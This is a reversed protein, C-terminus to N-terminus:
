AAEKGLEALRYEFERSEGNRRREVSFWKRLERMRRLGERQGAAAIISSASHWAGDSMIRHVRRTAENLEDIDKETLTGEGGLSKASAPPPTWDLLSPQNM